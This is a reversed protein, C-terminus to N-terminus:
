QNDERRHSAAWLCGLHMLFQYACCLVALVLAAAPLDVPKPLLAFGGLVLAAGAIEFGLWARIRHTVRFLSLLGTLSFAFIQPICLLAAVEGATRWPEGFVFAFLEPGFFALPLMSVLGVALYALM